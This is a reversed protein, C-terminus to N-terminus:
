GQYDKFDDLPEDFDPMIRIKGKLAGFGRLSESGFEGFADVAEITAKVRVKGRRLDDSLPLHLTGDANPDFIGTIIGM